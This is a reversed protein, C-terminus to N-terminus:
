YRLAAHRDRDNNQDTGSVLCYGMDSISTYKINGCHNDGRGVGVLSYVESGGFNRKDLNTLILLQLFTLAGLLSGRM